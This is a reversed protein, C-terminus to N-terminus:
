SGGPGGLEAQDCRAGCYQPSTAPKVRPRGVRLTALGARDVLRFMFFYKLLAILIRKIVLPNMRIAPAIIPGM